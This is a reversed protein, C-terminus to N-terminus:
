LTLARLTTNDLRRPWYTLRRITSNLVSTSAPPSGGIGLQTLGSPVLYTADTTPSAGNTVLAADNLASGFATKGRVGVAVSGNDAAFQTVTATSVSARVKNTGYQQVRILNNSTGDSFEFIRPFQGSTINTGNFDAFVTGEDQRYWRSFNSGTVTWVDADRTAATGTTPIYSTPFSGVELQAGWIYVGSTGDGTYDISGSEEDRLHVRFATTTVAPTLTLTVSCRRWGNPLVQMTAGTILNNTTATPGTTLNFTILSTNFAEGQHVPRFVITNNEAAKVYISHTYTGAGTAVASQIYHEGTTSDEVLKDATTLGDPATAANATISGRVKIWSANDFEESRLLLNTRAEEVLWGWRLNTADWQRRLASRQTSTTPLYEGATTGPNLQAGWIYIGSTGNGVEINYLGCRVTTTTAPTTGTVSLRYWGDTLAVSSYSVSTPPTGGTTPALFQGTSLDFDARTDGLYTPNRVGLQMRLSTQGAAKVYVSFTYATGASASVDQLLAAAYAIVGNNAIFADATVTGSPSAVANATVTSTSKTWSANDFEESRLLLNTTATKVSGDSDIYTAAAVRTHTTLDLGSVRDIPTPGWNADIDFSPVMRARTWLPDRLWPPRLATQLTARM